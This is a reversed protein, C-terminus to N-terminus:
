SREPEVVTLIRQLRDTIPNYGYLMQRMYELAQIREQPTKSLWFAKEDSEEDFSGVSFCTKDMTYQLDSM